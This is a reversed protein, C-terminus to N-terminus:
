DEINGDLGISRIKTKLKKNSCSKNSALILIKHSKRLSEHIWSFM